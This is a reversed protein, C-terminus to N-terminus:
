VRFGSVADGFLAGACQVLVELAADHMSLEGRDKGGVLLQRRLRERRVAASQTFAEFDWYLERSACGLDVRLERSCQAACSLVSQPSVYM